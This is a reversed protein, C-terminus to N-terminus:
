GQMVRALAPREMARASWAQVNKFPGIDVGLRSAFPVFSAAACDVLSFSGGLMFQRGELHHDLIGFYKKLDTLAAERAKTNRHDEPARDGNLIVRVLADHVSVSVWCMWKFAEAREPGPKPFLEKEVGFTEGLYLLQALSEFIAVGDVVLVPIKGNPNLALFEPVQASRFGAGWEELVYPLDIEACLWLVKRGNISSSKGLIKLM